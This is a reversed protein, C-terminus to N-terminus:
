FNPNRFVNERIFMTSTSQTKHVYNSDVLNTSSKPPVIQTSLSAPFPLANWMQEGREKDCELGADASDEGSTLSVARGGSAFGHLGVPPKTELLLM